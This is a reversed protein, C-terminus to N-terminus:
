VSRQRSRNTFATVTLVAAILLWSAVPTVVFRFAATSAPPRIVADAYIAVSAVAILLTAWQLALRVRVTWRRAVSAMVLEGVFPSLVWITFLAKLLVSPNRRAVWLMLAVSAAGGIIAALIAGTRVLVPVDDGAAVDNFPPVKMDAM